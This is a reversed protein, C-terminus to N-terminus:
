DVGLGVGLCEVPDGDSRPDSNYTSMALQPFDYGYYTKEAVYSSSMLFKVLDRASIGSIDRGFLEVTVAAFRAQTIEIHDVLSANDYHIILGIAECQDSRVKSDAGKFFSTYVYTFLRGVEDKHMGFRVPGVGLKPEIIFHHM